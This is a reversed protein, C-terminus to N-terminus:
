PKLPPGVLRDVLKFDAPVEFSAPDIPGKFFEMVDTQNSFVVSDKGNQMEMPTHPSPNQESRILLGVERQGVEINEIRSTFHKGSGTQFYGFQHSKSEPLPECSIRSDFDIYWADTVSVSPQLTSESLPTTKTTTIVHKAVQGFIEEREGTDRTTTEVRFLPLTSTNWDPEELGRKKREETTLPKPPYETSTYEHTKTNLEYRRGLDCREIVVNALPDAPKLPEHIADRHLSTNRYETRRRDSMTYATIEGGVLSGSAYRWVVRTGFDEHRGQSWSAVLLFVLLLFRAM